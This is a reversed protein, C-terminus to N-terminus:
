SIVELVLKGRVRETEILEHAKAAEQLPFIKEVHVKVLGKAILDSIVMLDEGRPKIASFYAKKSRMFNSFQYFFLGNNPLTSIYAGDKVLIKKSKKFSSKAVADFVIEFEPELNTFDEATYDIVRDAGLSRVFELNRKSCVATVQAGLAKAIQVAFTGVGGSAGNILVKTGAKIGGAIRFSQYSTIAGLPTAAAEAMSINEPVPALQSENVALFEAYGGGQYSLMGYVKDGPRFKSNKGAQEVVGAVDQGLIRPFKRGVILKMSGNRIKYDVPNLGVAHVRILVQGSGPSPMAVEQMALQEPGGFQNIVMAKM